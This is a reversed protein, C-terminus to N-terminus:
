LEFILFAPLAGARVRVSFGSMRAVMARLSVPRGRRTTPKAASVSSRRAWARAFRSRFPQSQSTALSTPEPVPTMPPVSFLTVSIVASPSSLQGRRSLVSTASRRASRMASASAHASNADTEATQGRGIGGQGQRPVLSGARGPHVQEGVQRGLVTCRSELKPGACAGSDRGADGDLDRLAVLDLDAGAGAERETVADGEEVAGARDVAVVPALDQCDEDIVPLL